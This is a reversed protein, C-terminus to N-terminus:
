RQTSSIKTERGINLIIEGAMEKVTVSTKCALALDM